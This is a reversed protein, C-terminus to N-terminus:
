SRYCLVEMVPPSRTNRGALAIQEAQAASLKSVAAIRLKANFHGVM